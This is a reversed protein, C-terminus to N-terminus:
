AAIKFRELNERFGDCYNRKFYNRLQDGFLIDIVIGVPWLYSAAIILISAFLKATGCNGILTDLSELCKRNNDFVNLISILYLTSMILYAVILVQIM